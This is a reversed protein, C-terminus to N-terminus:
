WFLRHAARLPKTLSWSWSREMRALAKEADALKQDARSLKETLQDALLAKGAVAKRADALRQANESAGERLESRLLPANERWWTGVPRFVDYVDEILPKPFNQTYGFQVLERLSFLGFVLREDETLVNMYSDTKGSRFFKPNIQRLEKFSPLAHKAIPIDAIAAIRDIAHEPRHILNEFQILLTDCHNQPDWVAVHEAWSTHPFTLGLLLDLLSAEKDNFDKQYRQYSVTAERGDRVIYIVKDASDVLSRTPEHTKLFHIRKSQRLPGLDFESSWIDHALSCHGTLSSLEVDGAIDNDNYISYTDYGFCIKILTRLYTNGSRPYSSLWVIM